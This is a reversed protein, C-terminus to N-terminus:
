RIESFPQNGLRYNRWDRFDFHWWESPNLAFGEAEMARRLLARHWRQVTTGGPYFAYARPTTEDYTSPMEVPRGSVLDYLTLDVAAGRNHRSGGAPNAVLWRQAIPTADWFAKTVYWPRYGDFVMLGYGYPRLARHIRVVADAAPRQLFARAEAYFPTGLFNNTTAYRIDLRIGPDLTTIDVLDPPLFDGTEQPPSQRLADAIFDAVPGVPTVHLQEAGDAPGVHRRDYTAGNRTLGSVRGSADRVFRLDLGHEDVFQDPAREVACDVRGRGDRVCLAGDRELVYTPERVSGYEGILALWRAPPDVPRVPAFPEADPPFTPLRFPEDSSQM